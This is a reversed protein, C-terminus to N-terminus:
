MDEMNAQGSAGDKVEDAMERTKERSEGVLNGM